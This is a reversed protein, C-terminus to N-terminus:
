WYVEKSRNALLSFFYSQPQFGIPSICLYLQFIRASWLFSEIAYSWCKSWILAHSAQGLKELLEFSSWMVKQFPATYGKHISILFFIIKVVKIKNQFIIYFISCSWYLLFLQFRKSETLVFQFQLVLSTICIYLFIHAHLCWSVCMTIEESILNAILPLKREPCSSNGLQKILRVLKWILLNTNINMHLFFIAELMVSFGVIM